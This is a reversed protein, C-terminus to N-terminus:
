EDNELWEEWDYDTMPESDIYSEYYGYEGDAIMLPEFPDYEALDYCMKSQDRDM